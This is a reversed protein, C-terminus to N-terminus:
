FGEMEELIADLKHHIMNVQEIIPELLAVSKRALIVWRCCGLALILYLFALLRYFRELRHVQRELDEAEKGKEM